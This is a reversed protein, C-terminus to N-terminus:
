GEAVAQKFVEYAPRRATTRDSIPRGGAALRDSSDRSCERVLGSDFTSFNRCREGETFGKARFAYYYLRTIRPDAHAVPGLLHRMEAVQEREQRTPATAPGRAPSAAVAEDRPELGGPGDELVGGVETLWLQRQKGGQPAGTDDSASSSVTGLAQRAFARTGHVGRSGGSLGNVDGYPHYGWVEPAGDEIAARYRLVYAAQNMRRGDSPFRRGDCARSGAPRGCVGGPGREYRDLQALEGAVLRCRRACLRRLATYYAAAREPRGLTPQAPHNPENWATLVIDVRRPRERRDWGPTYRDLFARMDRIYAPVSPLLQPRTRSVGFAVLPEYGHGRASAIWRDLNELEGPQNPDGDRFGREGAAVVDHSVVIRARRLGLAELQPNGFDYFSQTGIGYQLSAPKGGGSGGGDRSLLLGASAAGLAVLALAVGVWRRRLHSAIAPPV